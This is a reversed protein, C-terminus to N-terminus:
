MKPRDQQESCVLLDANYLYVYWLASANAVSADSTPECREKKRKKFVFVIEMLLNYRGTQWFKYVLFISEFGAPQLSQQHHLSTQSPSLPAWESGVVQVGCVCHVDRPACRNTPPRRVSPSLAGSINPQSGENRKTAWLWPEASCPYVIHFQVYDFVTTLIGAARVYCPPPPSRGTVRCKLAPTFETSTSPFSSLPPPHCRPQLLCCVVITSHYPYRSSHRVRVIVPGMVDVKRTPKRQSSLAISRAFLFLM